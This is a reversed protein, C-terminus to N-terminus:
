VFFLFIFLFLNYVCGDAERRKIRTIKLFVQIVAQLIARYNNRSEETFGFIAFFVFAAWVTNWRVLEFCLETIRDARWLFAPLQLIKSLKFYEQTSAPITYVAQIHFYLVLVNIPFLTILDYASFCILRIYRKSDFNNNNNRTVNLNLKSRKYLARISLCGYVGAIIELIIPPICTIVIPLWINSTPTGTSCGYDEVLM